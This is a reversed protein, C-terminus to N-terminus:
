EGLGGELFQKLLLDEEDEEGTPLDPLLTRGIKVAETAQEIDIRASIENLEILQGILEDNSIDIGLMSQVDSKYLGARQDGEQVWLKYQANGKKFYNILDYYDGNKVAKTLATQINRAEVASQETSYAWPSLIAGLRNEESTIAEEAATIESQNTLEGSDIEAQRSIIVGYQEVMKSIPQYTLAKVAEQAEKKIPELTEIKIKAETQGATAATVKEGAEKALRAYYDTQLRELQSETQLEAIRQQMEPTYLVGEQEMFDIGVKAVDEADVIHKDGAYGPDVMSVAEDFLDIHRKVSASHRNLREFSDKQARADDYMVQLMELAGENASTLLDQANIGKYEESLGELEVGRALLNEKVTNIAMEHEKIDVDEQAILYKYAEIQRAEKERGLQSRRATELSIFESALDQLNGLAEALDSTQKVFKAM